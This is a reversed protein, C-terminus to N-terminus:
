GVVVLAVLGVIGAVVLAAKPIRRDRPTMAMARGKEMRSWDPEVRRLTVRGGRKALRWFGNGFGKLQRSVPPPGNSSPKQHKSSEWRQGWFQHSAPSLPGAIRHAHHRHLFATALGHTTPLRM